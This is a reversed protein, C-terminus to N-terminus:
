RIGKGFGDLDTFNHSIGLVAKNKVATADLLKQVEM